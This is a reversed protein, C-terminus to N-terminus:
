KYYDYSYKIIQVPNDQNDFSTQWQVTGNLNYTYTYHFIKESEDNYGTSEILNSKDDYKNEIKEYVVNYASLETELTLNGKEDYGYFVKSYGFESDYIHKETVNNKNDYKLIYKVFGKNPKTILLESVRGQEDFKYFFNQQETKQYGYISGKKILGKEDLVYLSETLSGGGLKYKVESTLIGGENFSKYTSKNGPLVVDKGKVSYATGIVSHVKNKAMLDIERKSQLIQAFGDVNCM